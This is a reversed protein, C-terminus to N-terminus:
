FQRYVLWPWVQLPVPDLIECPVALSSSSPDCTSSATSAPCPSHSTTSMGAPAYVMNHILQQASSVEGGEAFALVGLQMAIRGGMCCVALQTMPM